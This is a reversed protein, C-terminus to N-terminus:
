DCLERAARAINRTNEETIIRVAFKGKVGTDLVRGTMWDTLTLSSLQSIDGERGPYLGEMNERVIVFDISEPNKLTSKLNLLDM